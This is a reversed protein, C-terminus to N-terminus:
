KSNLTDLKFGGLVTVLHLEDIFVHEVIIPLLITIGHTISVWREKFIKCTRSETDRDPISRCMGGGYEITIWTLHEVQLTCNRYDKTDFCPVELLNQYIITNNICSDSFPPQCTGVVVPSSRSVGLCHNHAVRGTLLHNMIISMLLSPNWEQCNNKCLRAHIRMLSLSQSIQIMCKWEQLKEIMIYVMHFWYSVKSRATKNIFAVNGGNLLSSILSLPLVILVRYDFQNTFIKM